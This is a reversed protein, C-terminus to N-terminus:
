KAFPQRYTHAAHYDEGHHKIRNLVTLYKVHYHRCAQQITAFQQGDITFPKTVNLYPRPTRYTSAQTYDEGQRVRMRVTHLNVHYYKAAEIVSRFYRNDITFGIPKVQDISQGHRIRQRVKTENLHETLCLQHIDQYVRGHYTYSRPRKAGAPRYTLPDHKDEHKRTIRGEVTAYSAKYYRCAKRVSNFYHSGVKLRSTQQKASPRYTNPDNIDEGQNHIRQYVTGYPVKFHQCAAHLNKFPQGNIIPQMAPNRPTYKPRYTRPDNPDNNQNHIRSYVISVPIQYYAAAQRVSAFHQNEITVPQNLIENRPTQKRYNQPQRYTHPDYADELQYFIRRKLTALPLHFHDAAAQLSPFWQDGLHIELDANKTLINAYAQDIIGNALLTKLVRKLHTNHVQSAEAPSNYIQNQVKIKM